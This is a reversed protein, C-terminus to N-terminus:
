IKVQKSTAKPTLDQSLKEHLAWQEVQELIPMAEDLYYQGLRENDVFTTAAENLVQRANGQRALHTCIAICLVINEASIHMFLVAALFFTARPEETVKGSALLKKLTEAHEDSFHLIDETHLMKGSKAQAEIDSIDSPRALSVYWNDELFAQYSFGVIPTNTMHEPEEFKRLRWYHGDVKILKRGAECRNPKSKAHPKM